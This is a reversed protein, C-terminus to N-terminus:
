SNNDDTAQVCLYAETYVERSMLIDKLAICIRKDLSLNNFDTNLIFDSNIGRTAVTTKYNDKELEWWMKCCKVTEAIKRKQELTYVEPRNITIPAGVPMMGEGGFYAFAEKQLRTPIEKLRGSEHGIGYALKVARGSSQDILLQQSPLWAKLIKEGSATRFQPCGKDTTLVLQIGLENYVRRYDPKPWSNTCILEGTDFQVFIHSHYRDGIGMHFAKYRDWAQAKFEPLIM